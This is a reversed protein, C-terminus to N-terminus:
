KITKIMIIIILILITYNNNNKIGDFCFNTNQVIESCLKFDSKYKNPDITGGFSIILPSSIELNMEKPAVKSENQNLSSSIPINKKETNSKQPVTDDILIMNGNKLTVYSISDMDLTMIDNPHISEM